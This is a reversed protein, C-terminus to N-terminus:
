CINVHCILHCICAVQGRRGPRTWLGIAAAHKAIPINPHLRDGVSLSVQCAKPTTKLCHLACFFPDKDFWLSWCIIVPPMIICSSARHVYLPPAAFTLVSYIRLLVCTMHPCFHSVHRIGNWSLVKRIKPIVYLLMSYRAHWCCDAHWYPIYWKSNKGSMRCSDDKRGKAMDKVTSLCTARHQVNVEQFGQGELPQGLIHHLLLTTSQFIHLCAPNLLWLGVSFQELM